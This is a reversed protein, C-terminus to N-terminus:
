ETSRISLADAIPAIAQQIHEFCARCVAQGGMVPDRVELPTGPALTALLFTRGRADPFRRRMAALQAVDMVFIVDAEAVADATVVSATHRRLDIQFSDAALVPAVPSLRGPVAQLGASAVRVGTRGVARQLAHATFPSRIINGHCLVLVRQAAAITAIARSSDRRDRRADRRAAAEDLRRRVAAAARKTWARPWRLGGEPAIPRDAVADAASTQSPLRSM